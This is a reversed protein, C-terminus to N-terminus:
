KAKKVLGLKKGPKPPETETPRSVRGPTCVTPSLVSSTTIATKKARQATATRATRRDFKPRRRTAIFSEGAAKAVRPSFAVM